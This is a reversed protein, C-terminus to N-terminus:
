DGAKYRGLIARAVRLGDVAASMIGGAYGAGEGCPYLGPLNLAQFDEGRPLRVPSSTRTELGTLIADPATYGAIKREFASLGTRMTAALEEPLLSGLDYPTVGRDYTPQVRGITLRGQGALFSPVNEAPAAYGGGGARYAAQELRRQFAIARAPDQDFDSGDLSVVVAANANKGDRAHYSMGNTVVGGEESASAVVQGGPCMCFTYVCRGGVQQSLQYEGHPLAPHGAAEHYLSEEIATQLHEARFGVSFPKCTLNLGSKQLMAFTDRASHGVALVLVECPLTGETTEIGALRGNKVTLGTLATDFRVEGGLQEIERRISAIVQRLLDTGVHPKQRIAIEAPAGHQLFTETVFGCLEDGIRTTLKGDSFTGAGGEGFQINANPNLEGTASFHKVAKVREELAPGRELVLPRLGQRALLLACFLGAPGLGCVVPRTKLTKEGKPLILRVPKSVAVCPAAGAYAPEAGEDNLTIAVTYVLVPKRHRADVSIKAIGSERVAAAPLHLIRLAEQVAQRETCSLPLRINRVLLM